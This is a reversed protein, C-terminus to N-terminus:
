PLRCVFLTHSMGLHDIEQEIVLGADAVCDAIDRSHYMRSNGNAMVTFYLSSMNLCYRAVDHKQRDWYTDLIFLRTAPTMAAHARKLIAVVEPESFCCLFQSMWLADAGQPISSVPDLFDIPHGKIREGLGAARANALAVNL